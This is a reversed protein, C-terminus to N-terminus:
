HPFLMGSERLLREQIRSTERLDHRLVVDRFNSLTRRLIREEMQRKLASFDDRFIAVVVRPPQFAMTLTMRCCSPDVATSATSSSSLFSIDVRGKNRIGSTSEWEIVHPRSQRTSISRWSYSLGAIKMTWRSVQRGSDIYRVDQLWPSWTPQRPLDSFADYAVQAPFPLEISSQVVIPNVYDCELPETATTTKIATTVSDDGASVV